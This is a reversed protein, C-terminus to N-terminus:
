FVTSRRRTEPIRKQSSKSMGPHRFPLRVPSLIGRHCCWTPELGVRPVLFERLRYNKCFVIDALARNFQNITNHQAITNEALDNSFFKWALDHKFVIANDYDFINRGLRRDMKQYNGFFMNLVNLREIRTIQRKSPSKKFRGSLKRFSNLAGPIKLKNNVATAPRTLQDRVQMRM